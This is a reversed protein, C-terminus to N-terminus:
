EFKHWKLDFYAKAILPHKNEFEEAYRRTASGEKNLQVYERFSTKKFMSPQNCWRALTIYMGRYSSDRWNKDGLKEYRMIYPLCGLEQLIAIREFAEEIDKEDTSKYGTLIYVKTHKLPESEMWMELKDYIKDEDKLDDFAFIYSPGAWSSEQLIKIVKEDMLRIDMGQKYEFKKGTDQLSKLISIKDKCALINDDLLCIRKNSDIDFEELSSWKISRKSHQNVCFKCGRFCGRSTFGISTNFYYRTKKNVEVLDQYLTYDPLHHEIYSPLKPPNDFCFGTGGYDINKLSLLNEDILSSEFVKSLYIKDWSQEKISFSNLLEVNDGKKKHYGSLKMLALNPFNTNNLLDADILGIKM